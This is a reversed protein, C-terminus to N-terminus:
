AEFQLNKKKLKEVLTTRNMKLLESAKNKNGRTRTLAQLLIDNEFTNIIERLDIGDDPLMFRPFQIGDGLNLAGASMQAVLHTAFGLRGQAGPSSQALEVREFIKAPLDKLTVPGDGCFVVLREVLNELERVNGPWDYRLFLDIVEPVDFRVSRKKETNFYEAFHEVLIPIDSKRERLAPIHIPIVNLRYFLDERFTKNKVSEELDKNTAAIIRVDALIAKMAGVPEFKREQLVRLLKVQLMSPMDGIEDLFISGGQALEFRGQRNSIAGTFAGKVHGFLESELLEGPIAGCNVPILPGKARISLEHIARAVLEKGTGSEGSILVTSDTDAVKQIAEFVRQIAPSRGIIGGFFECGQANLTDIGVM